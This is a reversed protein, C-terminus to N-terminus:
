KEDEVIEKVAEWNEVIFDFTDGDWRMTKNEEKISLSSAFDILKDVKLWNSDYQLCEKESDFIINEDYVSQYLLKPM